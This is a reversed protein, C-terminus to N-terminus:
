QTSLDWKTKAESVDSVVQHIRGVGSQFYRSPPKAFPRAPAFPSSFSRVTDGQIQGDAVQIIREATQLVLPDHSSFLFTIGKQTNLEKFVDLLLKATKSDLNATPEDAFVIQPTAVIARAIAVRQQQGGSLESPLRGGLEGCGTEKLARKALERRTKSPIKKLALPYEVNELATLVPFLNYSQFVFGVQNCRLDSIASKGLMALNRGLLTVEGSSPFDLGAALNLLTSKGSGSPGALATFEGEKIGFSINQIATELASYKKTVQNFSLIM